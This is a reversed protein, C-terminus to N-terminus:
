LSEESLSSGNRRDLSTLVAGQLSFGGLPNTNAIHLACIVLDATEQALQDVTMGPEKGHDIKEAMAAIRGLSKYVHLLDHTLHRHGEADQSDRFQQSYPIAWPLREQLERLSIPHKTLDAM